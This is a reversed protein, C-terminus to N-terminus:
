EHHYPENKIITFARYLQEAFFVRVMQHSFTMQSLSLKEDARQTIEKSFGYPGGCVFVLNKISSNMKRQLYIAFEVSRLEKGHEDLLIVHDGTSFYKQTLEGEKERVQEETLSKTNRPSPIEVVEFPIYHKLRKEYFSFADSLFKMETRGNLLLTIKM